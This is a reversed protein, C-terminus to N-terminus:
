SACSLVQLDRPPMPACETQRLRTARARWHDAIAGLGALHCDRQSLRALLAEFLERRGPFDARCLTHPHWNVTLLGRVRWVQELADTALRAAQAPPLRLEDFLQSDMLVLPLELLRRPHGEADLPHFPLSTGARFGPRDNFGLSSDVVLGAEEQAQWTRAADFRLWHQRTSACPLGLLRELHRRESELRNASRHSGWGGHLGVEVARERARMLLGRVLPRDLHYRFTQHDRPAALFLLSAHLGHREELDM